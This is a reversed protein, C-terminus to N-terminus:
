HCAHLARNRVLLCRPHCSHSSHPKDTLDAAGQARALPLTWIITSEQSQQARKSEFGTSGTDVLAIAGCCATYIANPPAAGVCSLAAASAATQTDYLPKQLVYTSHVISGPVISGSRQSQAPQLRTQGLKRIVGCLRM